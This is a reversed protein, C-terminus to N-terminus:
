ACCITPLNGKMFSEGDSDGSGDSDESSCCCCEESEDGSGVREEFCGPASGFGVLKGCCCAANM